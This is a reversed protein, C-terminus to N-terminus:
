KATVAVTVDRAQKVCWKDSCVFFQLKAAIEHAGAAPAVFPVEFRPGAAKPDVADRHGLTRKELELGRGEVVIRLPADPHVHIKEAPVIAVVFTGKGGAAVQTTTGATDIRYSRAAEDAPDAARAPAAAALGLAAVLALSANRVM